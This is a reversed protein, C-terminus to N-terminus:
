PRLTVGCQRCGPQALEDPHTCWKAQAEPRPTKLDERGPGTVALTSHQARETLVDTPALENTTAAPRRRRWVVVRSDRGKARLSNSEQTTTPVLKDEQREREHEQPQRNDEKGARGGAEKAADRREDRGERGKEGDERGRTREKRKGQGERGREGAGRGEKGRKRRKEERGNGKPERTAERRRGREDQAKPRAEPEDTRKNNNHQAQATPPRSETQQKSGRQRLNTEEVDSLMSAQVDDM